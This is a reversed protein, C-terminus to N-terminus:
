APRTVSASMVFARARWALPRASRSMTSRSTSIPAIECFSSSRCSRSWMSLTTNSSMDHRSPKKENSSRERASIGCSVRIATDVSDNSMSPARRISSQDRMAVDHRIGRDNGLKRGDAFLFV